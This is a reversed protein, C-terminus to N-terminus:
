EGAYEPGLRGIPSAEYRSVSFWQARRRRCVVESWFTRLLIASNVYRLIGFTPLWWVVDLRRAHAACAAALLMWVM